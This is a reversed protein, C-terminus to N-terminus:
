ASALAVALQPGFMSRMKELYHDESTTWRLGALLKTDAGAPYRITRSEDTAASFTAEAVEAETCFATPYNAMNAFCSQAFAGYDNPILGQLRPGANTSFNTTPAYGLEVLKAKINFPEVEHSLSETFGEM